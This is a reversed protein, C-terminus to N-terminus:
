DQLAKVCDLSGRFKVVFNVFNNIHLFEFVELSRLYIPLLAEYRSFVVLLNDLRRTIFSITRSPSYQYKKVRQLRFRRVKYLFAILNNFIFHLFFDNLNTFLNILVPFHTRCKEISDTKLFSVVLDKKSNVKNTSEEGRKNYM